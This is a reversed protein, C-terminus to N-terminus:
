AAIKPLLNERLVKWTEIKWKWNKPAFEANSKTPKSNEIQKIWPSKKQDYCSVYLTEGSWSTAFKPVAYKGSLYFKKRFFFMFKSCIECNRSVATLQHNCVCVFDCWSKVNRNEMETKWKQMNEEFTKLTFMKFNWKLKMNSLLNWLTKWNRNEVVIEGFNECKWNEVLSKLNQNNPYKRSRITKQLVIKM